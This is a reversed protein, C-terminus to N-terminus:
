VASKEAQERRMLEERIEGALRLWGPEDIKRDGYGPMEALDKSMVKLSSTEIEKLNDHVFRKVISPMYTQRGCAYRVACVCICGFAMEKTDVMSTGAKRSAMPLVISCRTNTMDRQAYRMVKSMFMNVGAASFDDGRGLQKQVAQTSGIVAGAVIDYIEELTGCSHIETGGKETVRVEFYVESM